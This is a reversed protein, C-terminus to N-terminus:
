SINFSKQSTPPAKKIAGEVLTSERASKSQFFNISSKKVM